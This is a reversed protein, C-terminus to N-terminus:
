AAGATRADIPPAAAAALGGAALRDCVAAVRQSDCYAHLSVVQGRRLRIFHTGVNAYPIGDPPTARDAWEVAVTTDWPWGRVVVRRVDFRLDPFITYLRAFWRRLQEPTHREGGLAHDGPFVHVLAPPMRGVSTAYDGASLQRFTGRVQRAGCVLPVGNVGM